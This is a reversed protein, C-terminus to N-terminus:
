KLFKKSFNYVTDILNHTYSNSHKEIITFIHSKADIVKEGPEFRKKIENILHVKTIGIKFDILIDLMSCIIGIYNRLCNFIQSCKEKFIIFNSDKGGIVELMDNSIRMTASSLKPDFGLIFGFDIHFLTGNKHIMINDLHRDGIGLLYTIVSYVALSNSFNTRVTDVTQNLNNNLIYNLLSIKKTHLVDYVTISDEVFEILGAENNIPLIDYVIIPTDIINEKKLFFIMLRIVNCIVYDKILCDKKLLYSKQYVSGSSSKFLHPVIIPTTKSQKQVLNSKNIGVFIDTNGPIFKPIDVSKNIYFLNNTKNIKYYENISELIIRKSENKQILKSFILNNNDSRNYKLINWYIHGLTHDSKLM